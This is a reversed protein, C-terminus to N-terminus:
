RVTACIYLSGSVPAKADLTCNATVWNSILNSGNKNDRGFMGGGLQVFRLDGNNILAKFENLTPTPDQGDFGGIPLVPEGTATIFGAAAQAGFTALLYKSGNRNEDLYKILESNAQQGFPQFGNPL